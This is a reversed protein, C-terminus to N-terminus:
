QVRQSERYIEVVPPEALLLRWRALFQGMVPDSRVREDDQRYTGEDVYEVVEIFREPDVEDALLRIRIGGPAEYFPTAEALFERFEAQRDKTVRIRLHVSLAPGV